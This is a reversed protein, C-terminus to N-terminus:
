KRIRRNDNISPRGWTVLDDGASSGKFDFKLKTLSM